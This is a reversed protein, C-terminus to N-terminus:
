YSLRMNTFWFNMLENAVTLLRDRGQALCIWEMGWNWKRFIGTLIVRREEGPDEFHNKGEPIRVLIRYAAEKGVRAVHGAWRM